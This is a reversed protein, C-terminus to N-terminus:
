QGGKQESEAAAAEAAEKKRQIALDAPGSFMGGYTGGDSAGALFPNESPASSTSTLEAAPAIPVASGTEADLRATNGATIEIPAPEATEGETPPLEARKAKATKRAKQEQYFQDRAEQNEHYKKMLTNLQEEAYEQNQVKNPDPDWPTWKGVVAGYINFNRDTKALKRARAAAEAETAYVGRVKFGRMTTHFDNKSHFEDELKDGNKFMFDDFDNSLRTRELEKREKQCFEQFAEVIKHVQLRNSEITEVEEKLDKERLKGAVTDLVTNVAGIQEALWAELRTTKWQLDYDAIFRRFMFQNKDELIKEPSLFSVLAYRQSPIEPDEDLFDDLDDKKQASM